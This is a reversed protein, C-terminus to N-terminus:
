ADLAALVDAVHDKVKVRPFVRKVKGNEDDVVTTRVIGMSVNGYMNKEGWAGYAAITKAEPDSLLPFDLSYKDRFRCHAAISDRSVGFVKAGRKALDKSADRFQQAELTCGPTDDKPYFYVVVQHGRLASLSHTKGDDGPLSFDPATAGVELPKSAKAPTAVAPKATATKATATKTATATKKAAPKAATAKKTTKKSTAMAALIRALSTALHAGEHARERRHLFFAGEM